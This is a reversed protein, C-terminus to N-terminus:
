YGVSTAGLCSRFVVGLDVWSSRVQYGDSFLDRGSDSTGPTSRSQALPGFKLIVWPQSVVVVELDTEYLRFNILYFWAYLSRGVSRPITIVRRLGTTLKCVLFQLPRFSVIYYIHFGIKLWIKKLGLGGCRGWKAVSSVLTLGAGSEFVNRRNSRSRGVETWICSLGRSVQGILGIFILEQDESIEDLAHLTLDTAPM